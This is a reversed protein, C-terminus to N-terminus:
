ISRTCSSMLQPITFQGLKSVKSDFCTVIPSLAIEPGGNEVIILTLFIQASFHSCFAQFTDVHLDGRM